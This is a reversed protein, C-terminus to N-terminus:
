SSPPSSHCPWPLGWGPSGSRSSVLESGLVSTALVVISMITGASTWALYGAGTFANFTDLDLQFGGNGDTDLSPVVYLTAAV